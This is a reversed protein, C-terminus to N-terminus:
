RVQGQLQGEQAQLTISMSPGLRHSTHFLWPWTMVCSITAHMATSASDMRLSRCLLPHAPATAAILLLLLFAAAACCLAAAHPPENMHLLPHSCDRPIRLVHAKPKSRCQHTAAASPLPVPRHKNCSHQAPPAPSPRGWLLWLTALTVICCCCLTPLTHKWCCFCSPLAPLHPHM